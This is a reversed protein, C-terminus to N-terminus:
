AADPDCGVEDLVDLMASRRTATARAHASQRHPRRPSQDHEAKPESAELAQLFRDPKDSRPPGFMWDFTVHSGDGPGRWSTCRDIRRIVDVVADENGGCQELRTRILRIRQPTMTTLSAYGLKDAMFNWMAQVRDILDESPLDPKLRNAHATHTPVTLSPEPRNTPCQRGNKHRSHGTLHAGTDVHVNQGPPKEAQKRVSPLAELADMDLDYEKVKAGSDFTRWGREILLGESIFDSITRRVTRDSVETRDAINAQSTYIGAGNDSACDALVLMVAKRTASGLKRRAVTSVVYGSM